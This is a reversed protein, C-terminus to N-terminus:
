VIMWIIRTILLRVGIVVIILGWGLVLIIVRLRSERGDKACLLLGSKVIFCIQIYGVGGYWMRSVSEAGDSFSRLARLWRCEPVWPLL